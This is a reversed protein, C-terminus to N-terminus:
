VAAPSRCMVAVAPASTPGGQDCRSFPKMRRSRHASVESRKHSSLKPSLYV